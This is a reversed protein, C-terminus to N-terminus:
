GKGKKLINIGKWIYQLGSIATTIVTGAIFLEKLVWISFGSQFLLTAGITGLQFLTAFKSVASPRIEPLRSAARLIILGLVIIVDRLIALFALWVPLFGLIALIIFSSTMLLKDAAPDLYAGIVTRQGLLRALAGDIADTLAAGIFVACAWGYLQHTLFFILPLISVIRVISFLNPFNLM